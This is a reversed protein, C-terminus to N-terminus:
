EEVRTKNSKSKIEKKEQVVEICGDKESDKLRSRWYKDIPIGNADTIINIVSGKKYKGLDVNLKIKMNSAFNLKIVNICINYYM